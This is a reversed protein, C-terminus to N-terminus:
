NQIITISPGVFYLKYNENKNLSYISRFVRKSTEIRLIYFINEKPILYFDTRIFRYFNKIVGFNSRM